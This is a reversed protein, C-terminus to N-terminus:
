CDRAQGKRGADGLQNVSRKQRNGSRMSTAIKCSARASGSEEGCKDALCTEYTGTRANKPITHKEIKGRSRSLTRPSLKQSSLKKYAPAPPPAPWEASASDYGPCGPCELIFGTKEAKQNERMCIRTAECKDNKDKKDKKVKPEGAPPLPYCESYHECYLFTGNGRLEQAREKCKMMGECKEKQEKRDQQDCEPYHICRSSRKGALALKLRNEKCRKVSECKEIIEKSLPPSRPLQKQSSPKSHAPVPPPAFGEGHIYCGPGGGCFTDEPILRRSKKDMCIEVALCDQKREKQEQPTLMRDALIACNRGCFEEPAEEFSCFDDICTGFTNYFVTERTRPKEPPHQPWHPNYEGQNIDNPAPYPQIWFMEKDKRAYDYCRQICDDSKRKEDRTKGRWCKHEAVCSTFLIQFGNKPIPTKDEEVPPLSDCEPYNPCKFVIGTQNAVKQSREQCRVMKDCKLNTVARRQQECEPYDLCPADILELGAKQREERCFRAWDCRNTRNKAREREQEQRGREEDICSDLCSDRASGREKGCKDSVCTKYLITRANIPLANKEIIQGLDLPARRSLKQHLPENDALDYPGLSPQIWYSNEEGRSSIACIEFCARKANDNQERCKHDAICTTFLPKFKHIPITPKGKIGQALSPTGPPPENPSRKSHARDKPPPYPQIWYMKDKESLWDPEDNPLRSGFDPLRGDMMDTTRVDAPKEEVLPCNAPDKICIAARGAISGPQTINSNPTVRATPSAAVNTAPLLALVATAAKAFGM